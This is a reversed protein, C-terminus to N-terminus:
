FVHALAVDSGSAGRREGSRSGAFARLAGGCEQSWGRGRGGSLGPCARLGHGARERAVAM